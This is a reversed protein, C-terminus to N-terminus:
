LSIGIKKKICGKFLYILGNREITIQHIYFLFINNIEINNKM